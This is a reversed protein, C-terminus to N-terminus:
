AWLDRLYKRSGTWEMLKQNAAVPELGEHQALMDVLADQVGKAMGKADGCVYVAADQKVILDYLAGTDRRLLDQVYVKQDTARSVALHLQTITKDQALEELEHEFLYDKQTDRFGYYVWIPGFENRIDRLPNLGVGGMQERIKRQQQRHQLFGIFPAIGTGPGILVLPRKTDAPLVFANANPKRFVPVSGSPSPVTVPKTTHDARAPIQGTLRDLWPTAVGKRPVDYPTTYEVINFAFHIEHPHKLPSNAISYYRPLHPPLADLLREIPPQCSPFTTLIDVLTPVQDRLANFATAGQKSCIYLLTTKEQDNATYDALMRLLAKRPPTTLDVGYRLLDALTFVSMKQLHSPLNDGEVAYLEKYGHEVSVGLRSLLAEVLTEDNPAVIGFADGPEFECDPADLTVHLTRKQAEPLTLCTVHKLQYEVVPAPTQTLQYAPSPVAGHQEQKTLRATAVPLRPLGTLQMGSQLGSKDIHLSHGAVAKEITSNPLDLYKQVPEPLDKARGNMSYPEPHEKIEITKVKTALDDVTADSASRKVVTPLVDWLKAIWPDVVNELGEADDALGKEYFVKAGLDRFKKELKIATNNFSTYNTDGLGLVAIKTNTYIPEKVKRLYRWFKRSHDPPDGDGTNSAVFIVVPAKELGAKEYEEFPHCVGQYGRQKAESDINKAIWEASGTQSAWLITYTEALDTM